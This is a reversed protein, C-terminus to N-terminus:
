IWLNQPFKELEMIGIAVFTPPASARALLPLTFLGLDSVLPRPDSPSLSRIAGGVPKGSGAFEEVRHLILPRLYGSFM